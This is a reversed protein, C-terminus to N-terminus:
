NESFIFKAKTLFLLAIVSSLSVTVVVVNVFATDSEEWKNYLNM